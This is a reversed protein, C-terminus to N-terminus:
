KYREAQSSSVTDLIEYANVVIKEQLSDDIEEIDKLIINIYGIVIDNFIGTDFIRNVDGESLNSLLDFISINKSLVEIEENKMKDKHAELAQRFIEAQLKMEDAIM